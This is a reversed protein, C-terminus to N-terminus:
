KVGMYTTSTIVSDGKSSSLCTYAKKQTDGM